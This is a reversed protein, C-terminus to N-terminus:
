ADLIDVHKLLNCIGHSPRVNELLNTGGRSLPILHDIHLGKKWGEKKTSRPAELDIPENCIHCNSGYLELVDKITHGDNPAELKRARRRQSIEVILEPNAKKYANKQVKIKEANVQQYNATYAKIAEKNRERYAQKRAKIKEKNELAYQKKRNDHHEKNKEIWAKEVARKGFYCAQCPSENNRLHMRYGTGTSCGKRVTPELRETM